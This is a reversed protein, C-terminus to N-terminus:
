TITMEQSDMHFHIWHTQTELLYVMGQERFVEEMFGAGPAWDLVGVHMPGSHGHDTEAANNAYYGQYNELSNFLTKVNSWNWESDGTFNAWRDYDKAKGRNYMM